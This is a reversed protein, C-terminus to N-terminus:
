VVDDDGCGVFGDWCCVDFEGVVRSTAWGCCGDHYDREVPGLVLIRKSSFHHEIELVSETGEIDILSDLYNYESSSPFSEACARIQINTKLASLLFNNIMTIPSEGGEAQLEPNEQTLASLHYKTTTSNRQGDVAASFGGDDCHLPGGDANAHCHSEWCGNSNGVFLAFISEDEGAAAYRHFGAGREEKGVEDAVRAGHVEEGCASSVGWCGRM